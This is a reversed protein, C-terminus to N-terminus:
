EYLSSPFEKQGAGFINIKLAGLSVERANKLPFSGTCRHGSMIVIVSLFPAISAEM